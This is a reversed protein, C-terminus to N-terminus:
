TDGSGVWDAGLAWALGMMKGQVQWTQQSAATGSIEYKWKM